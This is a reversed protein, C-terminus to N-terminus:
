TCLVLMVCTHLYMRHFCAYKICEGLVIPSESFGSQLQGQESPFWCFVLQMLAWSNGLSFNASHYLVVKLDAAIRRMGLQMHCSDNLGPAVAISLLLGKAAKPGM